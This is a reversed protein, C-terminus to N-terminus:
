LKDGLAYLRAYPMHEKIFDVIGYGCLSIEDIIINTAM